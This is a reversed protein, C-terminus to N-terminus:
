RGVLKKRQRQWQQELYARTAAFQAMSERPVLKDYRKKPNLGRRVAFVASLAMWLILWFTVAFAAAVQTSFPTAAYFGVFPFSLIFVVVFLGLGVRWGGKRLGLAFGVVGIALGVVVAPTLWVLWTFDISLSPQLQQALWVASNHLVNTSLVIGIVIGVVLGTALGRVWDGWWGGALNLGIPVVFCMTLLFGDLVGWGISGFLWEGLFLLSGVYLLIGALLSLVMAVGALGAIIAVQKGAEKVEAMLLERHAGILGRLGGKLTGFAQRM